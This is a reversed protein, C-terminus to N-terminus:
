KARYEKRLVSMRIADYYRNNRFIEERLVGEKVFGAKEYSTVAGKHAANVGLYVKNLNLKEFGYRLLLGATETGVGKNWYKKDGIFIRYEAARSIWNITYLGCWGIMKDAKKEVIAFSVENPNRIEKEWQEQLLELHAPRDGMFLYHTVEPDNIWNVIKELDKKEIGRLYLDKGPIFQANM